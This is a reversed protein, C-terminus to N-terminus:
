PTAPAYGKEDTKILLAQSGRNGGFLLEGTPLAIVAEISDTGPNLWARNWEWNGTADAKLVYPDLGNSFSNSKGALIYGGDWYEVLGFCLEDKQGGYTKEWLVTGDTDTKTLLCDGARFGTFVYKGDNTAILDFAIDEGDTAYTKQWLLDGQSTFKLLWADAMGNNTPTTEGAVIINADADKILAQGEDVYPGGIIKEWLKNGDGDLKMVWLDLGGGGGPSLGNVGTAVIGGDDLTIIDYCADGEGGIEGDSYEWLINGNPDLRLIWWDAKFALYTNLGCVIFDGNQAQVIAKATDYGTGGFAKNWLVNGSMDAKALWMDWAKAGYTPSSTLGALMLNEDATIIMDYIIDEGNGGFSKYWTTCLDAVYIDLTLFDQELEDSVSFTVKHHGIDDCTPSWSFQGDATFDAGIPLDEVLWSLTQGDQDYATLTFLTLKNPFIDMDDVQDIKPPHNLNVCTGDLCEHSAGYNACQIQLHIYGNDQNCAGELLYTTGDQFTYCVDEKGAPYYNSKTSNKASFDSGDNDECWMQPKASEAQELCSLACQMYSGFSGALLNTICGQNQLCQWYFQQQYWLLDNSDKAMAPASATLFFVAVIFATLKSM